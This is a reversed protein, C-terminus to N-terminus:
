HNRSHAEQSHASIVVDADKYEWHRSYKLSVSSTKSILHGGSHLFLPQLLGPKSLWIGALTFSTQEHAIRDAPFGRHSCYGAGRQALDVPVFQVSVCVCVEFVPWHDRSGRSVTLWVQGCRTGLNERWNWIVQWGSRRRLECTYTVRGFDLDVLWSWARKLTFAM